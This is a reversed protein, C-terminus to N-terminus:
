NPPPSPLAFTRDVRRGYREHAANMNRQSAAFFQAKTIKGVKFHEFLVDNDAAAQLFEPPAHCALSMEYETRAEAGPSQYAATLCQMAAVFADSETRMGMEIAKVQAIYPDENSNYAQGCGGAVLAAAIAM